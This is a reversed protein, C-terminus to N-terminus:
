VKKKPQLVAARPLGVDAVIQGLFVPEGPFADSMDADGNEVYENGM